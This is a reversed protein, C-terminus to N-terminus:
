LLQTRFEKRLLLGGPLLHRFSIGRQLKNTYTLNDTVPACYFHLEIRFADDARSRIDIRCYNVLAFTEKTKFIKWFCLLSNLVTVIEQYQAIRDRYKWSM